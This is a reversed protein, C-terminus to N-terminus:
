VMRHIQESIWKVWTYQNRWIGIVCYVIVAFEALYILKKLWVFILVGYSQAGPVFGLIDLGFGLIIDIGFNLFMVLLGILISQYVHYKLFRTEAQKLLLLVFGLIGLSFYSFTSLVKEKTTPNM